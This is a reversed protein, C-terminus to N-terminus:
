NKTHRQILANTDHEYDSKTSTEKNCVNICLVDMLYKWTNTHLLLFQPSLEDKTKQIYQMESHDTQLLETVDATGASTAPIELNVLSKCFILPEHM